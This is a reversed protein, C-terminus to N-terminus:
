VSAGQLASHLSLDGCSYIHNIIYKIVHLRKFLLEFDLLLAYPSLIKYTLCFSTLFVAGMYYRSIPPIKKIADMIDM